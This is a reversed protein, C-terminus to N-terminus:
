IACAKQYVEVTKETMRRVTLEQMAFQYADEIRDQFQGLGNQDINKMLNVLDQPDDVSLPLCYKQDSFGGTKSRAVLVKMMFAEVTTLPFGENFSPALLCDSVSMAKRVSTWGVFRFCSDLGYMSITSKVKEYYEGQQLGSFLVTIKNRVNEPLMHVAEVVLLHNKVEDIRCHMVYVYNDAPIEWEKKVLKMEENTMPGDELPDKTGNLVTVVKEPKFKLKDILFDSVETSVGINIDGGFSLTRHLLDCPVNASHLTYVAPVTTYIHMILASIRHHCHVVQISNEEIIRHLQHVTNLIQLPNHTDATVPIFKVNEDGVNLENTSSVVVVKHGMRALEQALQAVHNGVGTKALIRPFLMINM